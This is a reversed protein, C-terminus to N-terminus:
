GNRRSGRKQQRKLLRRKPRGHIKRRESAGQDNMELNHNNGVTKDKVVREKVSDICKNPTIGNM